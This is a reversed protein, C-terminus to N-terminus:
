AKVVEIKRISSIPLMTIAGTTRDVLTLWVAPYSWDLPDIHQTTHEIIEGNTLHYMWKYQM